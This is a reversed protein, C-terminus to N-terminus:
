IKVVLQVKSIRRKLHIYCSFLCKLNHLSRLGNEGFLYLLVPRMYLFMDELIYMKLIIHEQQATVQSWPIHFTCLVRSRFVKQKDWQWNFIPSRLPNKGRAIDLQFYILFLFIKVKGISIHYNYYTSHVWFLSCM